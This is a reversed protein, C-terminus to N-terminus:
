NSGTDRQKLIYEGEKVMGFQERAVEEKYADTKQYEAQEDLEKQEEKAEAIQMDLEQEVAAYEQEKLKIRHGNYLVAGLVICVILISMRTQIRNQRTVRQKKKKTTSNKM